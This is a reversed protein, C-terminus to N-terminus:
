EVVPSTIRKLYDDLNTNAWDYTIVENDWKNGKYLREATEPLYHDSIRVIKGNVNAYISNGGDINSKHVIQVGMDKLKKELLNVTQSAGEEMAGKRDGALRYYSISDLQDKTFDKAVGMSPLKEIFKNALQKNEQSLRDQEKAQMLQKQLKQENFVAIEEETWKKSSTKAGAQPELLGPTTLTDLTNQQEFAPKINKNSFVGIQEVGNEYEVFSDYGRKKLAKIVSPTHFAKPDLTELFERMKIITYPYYDKENKVVEMIEDIDGGRYTKKIDLKVPRINAGVDMGSYSAAQMPDPTFYYALGRDKRRFDKFDKDTGHFYINEPVKASLIAEDIKKIQEKDYPFIVRSLPAMEGAAQLAGPATAEPNRTIAKVLQDAMENSIRTTARSAAPVVPAMGLVEALYGRDTTIPINSQTPMRFLPDGYSLKEVTEASPLALQRVLGM